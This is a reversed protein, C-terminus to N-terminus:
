ESNDLKAISNTRERKILCCKSSYQMKAAQGWHETSDLFAITLIPVRSKGKRSINNRSARPLNKQRRRRQWRRGLTWDFSILPFRIDFRMKTKHQHGENFFVHSNNGGPRERRRRKKRPTGVQKPEDDDSKGPPQNIRPNYCNRTHASTSEHERVRIIPPSTSAHM